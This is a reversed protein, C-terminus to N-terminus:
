AILEVRLRHAGEDGVASLSGQKVLYGEGAKDQKKEGVEKARDKKESIKYETKDKVFSSSNKELLYGGKKIELILFRWLSITSIEKAKRTFLEAHLTTLKEFSLRNTLAILGNNRARM